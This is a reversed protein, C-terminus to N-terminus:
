SFLADVNHRSIRRLFICFRDDPSKQKSHIPKQSETTDMRLYICRLPDFFKNQLPGPVGHRDLQSPLGSLILDLRGDLNPHKSPKRILM